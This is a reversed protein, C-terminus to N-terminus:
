SCAPCCFRQSLKNHLVATMQITGCQPLCLWKPTGICSLLPAPRGSMYQATCTRVLHGHLVGHLVHRLHQHALHWAECPNHLM